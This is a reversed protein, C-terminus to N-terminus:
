GQFQRATARSAAVGARTRRTVSQQPSAGPPPAPAAVAVVVAALHCHQSSLALSPRVTERRYRVTWLSESILVNVEGQHLWARCGKQRAGRYEKGLKEQARAGGRREEQREEGRERGRREKARREAAQHWIRGVNVM